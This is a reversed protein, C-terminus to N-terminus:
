LKSAGQDPEPEPKNKDYTDICRLFVMFNANSLAYETKVNLAVSVTCPLFLVHFIDLFVSLFM